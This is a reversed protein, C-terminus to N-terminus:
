YNVMFDALNLEQYFRQFIERVATCNEAMEPGTRGSFTEPKQVAVAVAPLQGIGPGDDCPNACSYAEVMDPLIGGRRKKKEYEALYNYVRGNGSIKEFRGTPIHPIISERLGGYFGLTKGNGSVADDFDTAPYDDLDIDQERLHRKLRGITINYAIVSQGITRMETRKAICPSLFALKEEVRKYKKLYNAACLMPSYVPMLQQRLLPLHHQIYQTVAACPSAILGGGPNQRLVEVYAWLTIDAYLLVNYVSRVGLTKIYGLLKLSSTFQSHVAPAVLLSISSGKRLDELFLATDDQYDIAQHPCATLCIGCNVCDSSMVKALSCETKKVVPCIQLCLNCNACNACVSMEKFSYAPMGSMWIKGM